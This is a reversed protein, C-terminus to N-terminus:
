ENIIIKTKQNNIAIIEELQKLNIGARMSALERMKVPDTEKSNIVVDEPKWPINFLSRCLEISFSEPDKLPISEITKHEQLLKLATVPGIKDVRKNKINYDCSVLIGFDVLQEKSLEWEECLEKLNLYIINGKYSDLEFIINDARHAICDSDGSVIASGLGNRVLFSGYAEAEEPSQIWSVGCSDLIDRLYKQDDETLFSTQRKITAILAKLDSVDKETIRITANEPEKHMLSVVKKGKQQLQEVEKHLVSVVEDSTDGELFSKIADELLAIREKSKQRKERRDQQEAAKAEPAKGDFIPIVYVTNKRFTHVLNIFANVWKSSENGHICVYKYIYGSIDVFVRQHAFLSLHEERLLHPYKKKIFALVGHLGM